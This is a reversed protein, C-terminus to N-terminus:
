GGDWWEDFDRAPIPASGYRKACGAGPREIPRPMLHRLSRTSNAQAVEWSIYNAADVLDALLMPVRRADTWSVEDAVDPNLYRCTASDPPLSRAFSLLARETLACGLWDLTM